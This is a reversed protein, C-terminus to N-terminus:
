DPLKSTEDRVPNSGTVKHMVTPDRIGKDGIGFIRISFKELIKM